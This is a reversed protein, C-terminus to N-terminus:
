SDCTTEFLTASGTSKKVRSGSRFFDPDPINKVRSVPDPINKVRYGPLFFFNPDPIFM